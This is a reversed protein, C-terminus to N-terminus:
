NNSWTYQRNATKIEMLVAANVWDNFKDAWSQTINRSSKEIAQRILNFGGGVVVLIPISSSACLFILEDIFAQKLEDYAPGYVPM